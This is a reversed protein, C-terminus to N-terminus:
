QVRVTGVTGGMRHWRPLADCLRRSDRNVGIVVDLSLFSLVTAGDSFPAPHMAAASHM